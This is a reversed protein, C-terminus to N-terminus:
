SQFKENKMKNILYFNWSFLFCFISYKYTSRKKGKNWHCYFKNKFFILFYIINYIKNKYKARQRLSLVHRLESAFYTAYSNILHKDPDAFTISPVRLSGNIIAIWACTARVAGYRDKYRTTAWDNNATLLITRWRRNTIASCGAIVCPARILRMFAIDRQWNTWAGSGPRSLFCPSHPAALIFAFFINECEGPLRPAGFQTSHM